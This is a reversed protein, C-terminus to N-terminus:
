SNREYITIRPQFIRWDYGAYKPFSYRWPGCRIDREFSVVPRYGERMGSRRAEFTTRIQDDKIWSYDTLFHTEVWYDPREPWASQARDWLVFRYDPKRVTEEPYRRGKWYQMYLHGPHIFTAEDELGWLRGTPVQARIWATAQDRPDMENALSRDLAITYPVRAFSFVILLAAAVKGPGGRQILPALALAAFPILIPLTENIYRGIHRGCTALFVLYPLVFLLSMRGADRTRGQKTALAVGAAALGSLVVGVGYGYHALPYLAYRLKGGNSGGSAVIFVDIFNSLFHRADLLAYPTGAVFAGAGCLAAIAYTKPAAAAKILAYLVFFFAPASTYKASMAFGAAASALYLWRRSDRDLAVLCCFFSAAIWFAAPVGPDGTHCSLVPMPTMAYFLGALLGLPWSTSLRAAILVILATILLGYVVVVLRAALFMKAYIDPNKLYASRDASLPIQGLLAGVAIAAGVQYYYFTPNDFYQPNFDLRAPNMRSVAMIANYEDAYLTTFRDSNPLGWSIGWLRLFAAVALVAGLGLAKKAM